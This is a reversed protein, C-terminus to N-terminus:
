PRFGNDEKYFFILDSGGGCVCVCTRARARLFVSAHKLM